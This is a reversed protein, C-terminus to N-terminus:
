GGRSHMELHPDARLAAVPIYATRDGIKLREEAGRDDRAHWREGVLSALEADSAGQRMPERLSFGATAYLCTYFVGDATIRARDCERCFPTTTSAIIGFTRGDPLAFRDAPAASGAREIPDVTGFRTRLRELMEARSVVTGSSWHTAGAVDMYEIFRVEADVTAGFELLAELEDDNVGRMIVADLRTGQFVRAAARIGRMVRAHDDQRTLALFRSPVLTDLSINLRKLGALKLPGASEELLLGNTTMALDALPAGALARVLDPLDRRLLPEGGTLRVKDVGLSAFVGVLRSIEEFDLLDGRSLWTYEREPMCYECRLNCRDTVSVRLARLPRGLTDVPPMGGM